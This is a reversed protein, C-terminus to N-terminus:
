GSIPNFREIQLQIYAVGPQGDRYWVILALMFLGLQVWEFSGMSYRLFGELIGDVEEYDPQELLPWFLFTIGEFDGSFVSPPIDTILHVVYGISFASAVERRDYKLALIYVLPVLITGLFVSHGLTRGGPLISLSWGLPKDILDPFQSALALAFVALGNPLRNYKMRTFASYLLYAIAIHGWPWM